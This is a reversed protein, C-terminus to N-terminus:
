FRKLAGELRKLFYDTGPIVKCMIDYIRKWTFVVCDPIDYEYPIMLIHLKNSFSHLTLEEIIDFIYKQKLIQQHLQYESEHTFAKCEILYLSEDSVILLDPKSQSGMKRRFAQSPIEINYYPLDREIYVESIIQINDNITSLQQILGMLLLDKEFSILGAFNNYSFLYPLITASYYREERTLDDFRIM